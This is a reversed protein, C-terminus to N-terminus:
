RALVPSWYEQDYIDTFRYTILVGDDGLYTDSIRMNDSVTIQDGIFYSDTYNGDYDYYDCIFDLTDGIELETLNKASVPEEENDYVYYAGAIYGNPNENDFVLILDVRTEENLIAPVRGTITYNEGDDITDTHFYAVPQDNISIWLAGDDAILNGQDDFDFVNDIGLNIYGNGDDYFMNLDLSHILAWDERGIEMKWNGDSDVKWEFISPDISNESIYREIAEDSMSRGSLFGTNSSGLGSVSGFDGGLFSGLLDNLSYGSSYSSSGSSSSGSGYSSGYGSLSGFLSGFSSSSGGMGAQGCVELSAFQKICETYEEDMGIQSYTNTVKDVYRANKYPFYISLGYANTICSATRNYKIASNLASALAKGETNGLRSALDVLDVQDIRSSSAFERTQNRADSVVKYNNNQILGSISKAFESFPAAANSSLEALDTVSLTAKQGQCKRACTNIFDDVINKGIEVTPMSTNRGFKTLWDTYYWGIGPETEESAIMYDAYSDLMLANEMTALLCTDFGVFDFTVGADKLARNIGALSMSGSNPFKEDYGYGSVSGSGHDWFILEFRDAPYNAAGWRIFSSLTSPDTMSVNGANDNLCAVGGNKVQWIQNTRNSVVSNNWKSAGGTYVILSINDGLDAETMEKLDSSAMGSRSELDAGCMYVLITVKDRGSGVIKTRKTRAGTAVTTDLDASAAATDTWGTSVSSNGAFFSNYFSTYDTDQGYGSYGSSGSQGSDGSQGSNDSQGSNNSQTPYYAQDSSPESSGGRGMVIVLIIIVVAVLALLLLLKGKGSSRTQGANSSGSQGSAQSSYESQPRQTFQANQTSQVGQNFQSSQPRNGAGFTYSSQQPANYSGGRAAGGAAGSPRSGGQASQSTQPGQGAQNLGSTGTPGTGLGEGRRFVGKGQGTV